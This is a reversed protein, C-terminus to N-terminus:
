EYLTDCQCLLRCLQFILNLPIVCLRVANTITAFCLRLHLAPPNTSENKYQHTCNFNVSLISVFCDFSNFVNIIVYLDYMGKTISITDHITFM